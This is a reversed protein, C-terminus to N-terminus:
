TSLSAKKIWFRFRTNAWATFVITTMLKGLERHHQFLIGGTSRYDRAPLMFHLPQETLLEQGTDARSFAIRGKEDIRIRLKGNVAQAVSQVSEIKLVPNSCPLLAQPLDDRIERNRTARLRISNEGWAEIRVIENSLKVYLVGDVVDFQANM